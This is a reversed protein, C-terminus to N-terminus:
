AKGINRHRSLSLSGMAPIVRGFLALETVSFAASKIIGVPDYFWLRINTDDELQPSNTSVLVVDPKREVVSGQILRPDNRCFTLGLSKRNDLFHNALNAFPQYM